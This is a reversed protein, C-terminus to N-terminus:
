HVPTIRALLSPMAREIAQRLAQQAAIRSVNAFAVGTGTVPESIRAPVATFVQVHVATTVRHSGASSQEEVFLRYVTGIVLYTVHADNALASLRAYKTIDTDRWSLATQAQSMTKRSIIAFAAPATRQLVTTADDAALRGPSLGSISPAPQRVVFDVVGIAPATNASSLSVPALVLALAMGIWRWVRPHSAAM